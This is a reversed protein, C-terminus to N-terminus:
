RGRRVPRVITGPEGPEGKEEYWLDVEPTDLAYRVVEEKEWRLGGGKRRTWVVEFRVKFRGRLRVVGKFEPFAYTVVPEISFFFFFLFLNIVTENM